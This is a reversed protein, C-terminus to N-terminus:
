CVSQLNMVMNVLNRWQDRVQAVYIWNTSGWGIGKHDMKISGVWRCRPRGEPKELM